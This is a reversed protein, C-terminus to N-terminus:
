QPEEQMKDAYTSWNTATQYAELISHDESYPVYFICSGTISSDGCNIFANTNALTPPTTPYLHVEELYYNYAFATAAISTVSSPIFLKRVYSNRCTDTVINTYTGGLIFHTVTPVDYLKVTNSTGRYPEMSDMTFKRLHIPYTGMHFNHMGKPIAVYKLNNDSLFMARYRNSTMNIPFVIAQLESREFLQEDYDAISMVTIPLSVTELNCMYKCFNQAIGTVNNGVEIKTVWSAVIRNSGALSSSAATRGLRSITGSLVEIEIVYKGPAAYTHAMSGNTNAGVNWVSEEGDGWYIKPSSAETSTLVITFVTDKGVPYEPIDIYVRTRGNSTTYNQGVVLGGYKGVFEKANALTWNWGQATLGSYTPNAPLETLTLFESASYSYLLRGDFDIFDVDKPYTLDERGSYAGGGEDFIAATGEVTAGGVELENVEQELTGVVKVGNAGYATYGSAIKGATATTDTIDILTNSGLVVKNIAM